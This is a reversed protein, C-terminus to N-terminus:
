KYSNNGLNKYIFIEKKNKNSIYNLGNSDMNILNPM